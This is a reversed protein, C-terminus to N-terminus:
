IEQGDDVEQNGDYAQKSYNRKQRDHPRAKARQEQRHRRHQPAEPKTM